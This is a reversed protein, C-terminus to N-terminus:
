DAPSGNFLKIAGIAKFGPNYLQAFAKATDESGAVIISFKNAVGVRRLEVKWTAM